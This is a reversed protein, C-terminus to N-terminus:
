CTLLQLVDPMAELNTVKEILVDAVRSDILGGTLRHFKDCLEVPSLPNEPDGKPYDVQSSFCGGGKTRIEVRAMWKDPYAETFQNDSAVTVLSMLRRVEHDQLRTETFADLGASGYAIATAVCFPLNFKAGFPTDPQVNGLLDIAAQYISVRISEIAECRCALSQSAKVAAEIAAHTHGCSAYYKLSNREFLFTEGLGELCDEPHDNQTTAAFFGKQGELIYQAGTFGRQALLASLLGTFAAKGAHLQKSMANEELFEWLGAAQTGASGLAQVFGDENLGLVKGAGAAAGFTGCTGTTHWHRYHSPGAALAIRIGTEYGAAIGVLLDKGSARKREAAALVAPIIAAAPHFISKRHLDDMEKVHSSAGNILAAWLCPGKKFGPIVTAEPRGGMDTLLGDMIVVPTEAQGGIASALWDLFFTKLLEVQHSSLDEYFLNSAFQAFKRSITSTQM